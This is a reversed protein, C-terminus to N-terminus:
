FMATPNGSMNATSSILSSADDESLGRTPRAPRETNNSRPRYSNQKSRNSEPEEEDEDSEGEVVGEQLFTFKGVDIDWDYALVIDSEGNRNKLMKIHLADNKVFLSFVMSASYAIGDSDRITELTPIGGTEMSGRNSQVVALIPIGLEISVEMLDASINTLSVTTSDSPKGREDRIYSIGDIGLVKIDNSKCWQKIKSVTVSGGFDKPNAVCFKTNSQALEAIYDEYRKMDEGMDRAYSLTRNSFNKYISDFRYGIKDGTMEPEILGVNLKNRWAETLMKTMVWTNHTITYNDTIYTHSPHDVMICKCEYKGIKSISSIFRKNALGSHCNLLLERYAYGGSHTTKVFCRIGLSQILSQLQDAFYLDDLVIRYVGNGIRTAINDIIGQLFNERNVVKGLMLEKPIIRNYASGCKINHFSLRCSLTRSTNNFLRNRIEFQNDSVKRIKKGYHKIINQVKRLTIKNNVEIVTSKNFRVNGSSLIVGLLYADINLSYDTNFTIPPVIDISWMDDMNDMIHKTTVVQHTGVHGYHSLRDYKSQVTWLHDIGADAYTGDTFHLRYVDKVGQPFTEVVKAYDGNGAVVIDGKNIDRMTVFGKPTLVKSYLPQEKGVGTRAVLVVFEEGPSWGSVKEDLKPFGTPIYYNDVSRRQNYAELRSKAEAVIDKGAPKVEQNLENMKANLYDIGEKSNGSAIKAATQLVEATKSFMYNEWLQDKLYTDPETVEIAVTDLIDGQFSPEAMITELDPIAGYKNYHNKIFIYLSKYAPDTIHDETLGFQEIVDMRKERLIKAIVQSAPIIVKFDADDASAGDALYEENINEDM